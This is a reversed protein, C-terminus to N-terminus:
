FTLSDMVQQLERAVESTTPTVPSTIIYFNSGKTGFYEKRNQNNKLGTAVFGSLNGIQAPNIETTPTCGNNYKCYLEEKNQGTYSGEYGWITLSVQTDVGSTSPSLTLSNDQSSFSANWHSPLTYKINRIPAGEQSISTDPLPNKLDTLKFSSLIQSDIEPSINMTLIYLDPQGEILIYDTDGADHNATFAYAPYTSVTTKALESVKTGSGNQNRFSQYWKSATTNAAKEVFFDLSGVAVGAGTDTEYPKLPGVQESNTGPIRSPYQFSFGLKEPTFTLWTNQTKATTDNSIPIQENEPAPSQDAPKPLLYFVLATTGLLLTGLILSTVKWYNPASKTPSDTVLPQDTPLTVPELNDQYNM